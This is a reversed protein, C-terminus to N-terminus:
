SKADFVRDTIRDFLTSLREYVQVFVQRPWTLVWWSFSFPWLTMWNIIRQRENAASPKQKKIWVEFSSDPGTPKTKEYSERARNLAEVVFSYWKKISWLIGCIFYAAATALAMRWGVGAFADSFLYLGLLAAVLIFAPWGSDEHDNSLLLIELLGVLAVAGWFLVGGVTLFEVLM